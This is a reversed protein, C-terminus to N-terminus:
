RLAPERRLANDARARLEFESVLTQLTSEVADLRSCTEAQQRLVVELRRAIRDWATEQPEFFMDATTQVDVRERLLAAIAAANRRTARSRPLGDKDLNEWHSVTERSCRGGVRVLERALDRQSM